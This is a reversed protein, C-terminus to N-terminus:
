HDNQSANPILHIPKFIIKPTNYLQKLDREMQQLEQVFQTLRGNDIYKQIHTAKVIQNVNNSSRRILMQTTELTTNPPLFIESDIYALTAKRSFVGIGEGYQKAISQIIKKEASTVVFEIRKIRQRFQRQYDRAYQRKFQARLDELESGSLSESRIHNALLYDQFTM